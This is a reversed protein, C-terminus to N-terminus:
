LSVGGDDFPVVNKRKVIESKCATRKMNYLETFFRGKEADGTGIALLMATGYILAEETKAEIELQETFTTPAKRVGLDSLIQGVATLVRSEIVILGSSDGNECSYGLLEVVKGFLDNVTM